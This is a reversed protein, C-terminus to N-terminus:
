RIEYNNIESFIFKMFENKEAMLNIKSQPILRKFYYEEGAVCSQMTHNLKEDRVQLNLFQPVRFSERVLPPNVGAKLGTWALAGAQTQTLSPDFQVLFDVLTNLMHQAMLDHQPSSPNPNDFIYRTWYDYIGPYSDKADIIDQETLNSLSGEGVLSLLKRFIEAHIIEHMFTRAIDANPRSLRDINFEIEIIFSDPPFTRANVTSNTGFSSSSFKLHSVPNQGSFNNLYDSGIQIVSLQNLIGGLCPENKFEETELILDEVDV